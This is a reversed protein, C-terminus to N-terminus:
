PKAASRELAETLATLLGAARHLHATAEDLAQGYLDVQNALTAEEGRELPWRLGPLRADKLGPVRPPAVWLGRYWAHGPLGAPNYLSKETEAIERNIALLLHTGTHTTWDTEDLAADRVAAFDDAAQRFRRLAREVPKFTKRPADLGAAREELAELALDWAAATARADLPLVPAMALRLGLRGQFEGMLRHYLFGPDVVTEMWRRDEYLSHYMGYDSGYYMDSGPLALFEVFPTQDDGLPVPDLYPMKLARSADFDIGTGDVSPLARTANQQALWTDYLSGGAPSSVDAATELFLLHLAPSAGVYLPRDPNFVASDMNIVAAAKRRLEDAHDEVWETSGGLNLEEADWFAIVLTRRPRWGERHLRGLARVTELLAATGSSPDGAGYIWADHHNGLIVWADPEEAGPITVLVNRITDIRRIPQVAVRLRAPGPGLRYVLSPRPPAAATAGPKAAAPAGAPAPGAVAGGELLGGQMREPAEPGGLRALIFGADRYSIPLVPIKPLGEVKSPDLRKTGPKAAWGPTLPDGEYPTDALTRRMISGPPRWNGGPYVPGLVFGDDIPDAYLVAAVAGREEARRVKAGEGAGFYRLLAVKGRLSIGHEDLAQFDDWDGQGVYVVEGEATGSGSYACYAPHQAAANTFPDGPIRDEVLSFEKRVPSTMAIASPGPHSNYFQYTEVRPRLGTKRIEAALFAAVRAAGDTGAAHPSQTLTRHTRSIRRPDLAAAFRTELAAQEDWARGTFGLPIGEDVVPGAEGPRVPESTASGAPTALAILCLAAAAAAIL